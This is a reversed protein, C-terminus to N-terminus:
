LRNIDANELVRKPAGRRAVVLMARGVQETTTVYDPVLRKFVPYLPGLVAYAANIRANELPHRAAAPHGGAPVRLRRQVPARAARKGDTGQGAGVHCPRAGHQRRRRRVRLRVDDGSQDQRADARGGARLRLTVRRYDAETMGASTIGLRLLLRRLRCSANSRPSTSSTASCSSTCSRTAAANRHPRGRARTGRRPRASVRPARGPGVMGTAGFLIVRM